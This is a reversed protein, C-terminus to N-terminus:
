VGKDPCLCEGVRLCFSTKERQAFADVEEKQGCHLRQSRFHGLSLDGGGFVDDCFAIKGVVNM